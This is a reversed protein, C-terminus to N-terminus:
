NFTTFHEKEHCMVHYRTFEQKVNKPSNKIIVICSKNQDKLRTFAQDPRTTYFRKIALSKDNPTHGRRKYNGKL